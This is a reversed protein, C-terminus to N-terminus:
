KAKATAVFYINNNIVTKIIDAGTELLLMDLCPLSTFGGGGSKMAAEYLTWRASFSESFNVSKFDELTETLLGDKSLRQFIYKVDIPRDSFSLGPFFRAELRAAREKPIETEIDVGINATDSISVAVAGDSHSISFYIKEGEYKPKGNESWIIKPSKEFLRKTIESLVLYAGCRQRRLEENKASMIHRKVEEGLPLAPPDAFFNSIDAIVTYIM